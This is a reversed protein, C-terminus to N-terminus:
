ATIVTGFNGGQLVGTLQSPDNMDFVVIPMANEMCLTIATRDMVELGRTMVEMYRLRPLRQADSHRKPDKDYVGDVKTAKLLVSCNLEIARLAAATDTTFFPAGTGCSLIVVRGLELHRMAKRRIFVESVQRMELGSCVRTQVERKELADQLALGNIATGLMGMQDATARNIGLASLTAGRVMNGGGIVVAVEAGLRHASLVLEAARHIADVDLGLEGPRCLSEGSLKLLVRQFRLPKPQDEGLAEVM